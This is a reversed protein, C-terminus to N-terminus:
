TSRQRRYWRYGALGAFLVGFLTLSAPEPTTAPATTGIGVDPGGQTTVVNGFSSDDVGAERLNYSAFSLGAAPTWPATRNANNQGTATYYSSSTPDVFLAVQDNQADFLGVLHHTGTAAIGSDLVFSTGIGSGGGSFRLTHVLAGFLATRAGSMLVPDRTIELSSNFLPAAQNSTLTYSIFLMGATASIPSAFEATDSLNAGFPGSPLSAPRGVIGSSLVSLDGLIGGPTRTWSGTFGVSGGGHVGQGALTGLEYPPAAFNDFAIPTAGAATTLVLAVVGAVVSILSMQLRSRCVGGRAASGNPHVM